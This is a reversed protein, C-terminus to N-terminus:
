GDVWERDSLIEGFLPMQIQSRAMCEGFVPPFLMNPLADEKAFHM